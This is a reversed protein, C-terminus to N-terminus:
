KVYKPNDLKLWIRVMKHQLKNVNELYVKMNSKDYHQDRKTFFELLQNECDERVALKMVSAIKGDLFRAFCM